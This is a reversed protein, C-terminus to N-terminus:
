SYSLNTFLSLIIESTTKYGITIVNKRKVLILVPILFQKRLKPSPRRQSNEPFQNEYYSSVKSSSNYIYHELDKEIWKSQFDLSLVLHLLTDISDLVSCKVNSGKNTHDNKKRCNFVM